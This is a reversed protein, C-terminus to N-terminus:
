RAPPRVAPISDVDGSMDVRDFCRDQHLQGRMFRIRQRRQDAVEGIRALGVIGIDKGLFSVDFPLGRMQM